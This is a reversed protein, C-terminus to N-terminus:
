KGPRYDDYKLTGSYLTGNFRFVTPQEIDSLINGQIIGGTDANKSGDLRVDIDIGVKCSSITNDRMVIKGETPKISVAVDYGSISCANLKIYRCDRDCDVGIATGIELDKASDDTNSQGEGGSGGPSSKDEQKNGIMPKGQEDKIDYVVSCETMELVCDSGVKVSGSGAATDSIYVSVKKMNVCSGGSINLGSIASGSEGVLSIDKDINGLCPYYGSYIMVTDGSDAAAIALDFDSFRNVGWGIDGEAFKASVGIDSVTVLCTAKYQTDTLSATIKAEGASLASIKGDGDVKAVSENDSKWEIMFNDSKPKIIAHMLKNEGSLMFAQTSDLQIYDSIKPECILNDAKCAALAAVALAIVALIVIVKKM